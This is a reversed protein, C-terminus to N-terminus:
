HSIRRFGSSAQEPPISPPIWQCAARVPYKAPEVPSSSHRSVPHPRPTSADCVRIGVYFRDVGEQRTPLFPFCIGHERSLELEGPLANAPPALSRPAGREALTVASGCPSARTAQRRNCHSVHCSLLAPHPEFLAARIANFSRDVVVVPVSPYSSAPHCLAVFNVSLLGVREWVLLQRSWLFHSKGGIPALQEHDNQKVEGLPTM